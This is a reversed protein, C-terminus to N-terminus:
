ASKPFCDQQKTRLDDSLDLISYVAEYFMANMRQIDDNIANNKNNSNYIFHLIENVTPAFYMRSDNIYNQYMNEGYEHVVIVTVDFDLAELSVSSSNSMVIDSIFFLSILNFKNSLYLEYNVAGLNNLKDKMLSFFEKPSNPHLRIIWFLEDDSLMAKFVNEHILDDFNPEASCSLLIVKKKKKLRNRFQILKESEIKESNEM